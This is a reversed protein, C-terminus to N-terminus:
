WCDEVSLARARRLLENVWNDKPIAMDEATVEDDGEAEDEEKWDSENLSCTTSTLSMAACESVEVEILSHDHNPHSTHMTMMMLSMM